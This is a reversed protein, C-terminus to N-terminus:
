PKIDAQSRPALKFNCFFGVVGILVSPKTGATLKLSAVDFLDNTLSPPKPFPAECKNLAGAVKPTLDVAVRGNMDNEADRFLEAGTVRVLMGIWRRGKAYDTLDTIPIDKPKPVATEYRFTAVPQAIQPLVAGPPFIATSGIKENEQYQGRMDLVDGPSVNLNGPNFSPAFLSIGSYPEESGIDQVYITGTGKGNQTEDFSDVAIVVAGSIAQTTKVLEKHGEAAPDGIDRIRKEKGSVKPVGNNSHPDGGETGSCACFAFLAFASFRV